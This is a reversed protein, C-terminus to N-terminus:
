LKLFGYEYVKPEIKQALDKLRSRLEGILETYKEDSSKSNMRGKASRGQFHARIDYLSANPNCGPVAHYYKWLERGAAFVIEAESSFELPTKRPTKGNEFIDGNQTAKLKGAIFRSMFNSEFKEKADVETETFPIWHNTGYESGIRNQGHFLAFILCDNKFETDKEM